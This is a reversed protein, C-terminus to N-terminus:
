YQPKPFLRGSLLPGSPPSVPTANAVLPKGDEALERVQRQEEAQRAFRDAQDLGESPHGLVRVYRQHHAVILAGEPM